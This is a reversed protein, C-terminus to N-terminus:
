DINRKAEKIKKNVENKIITSSAGFSIAYGSRVEMVKTGGIRHFQEFNIISIDNVQVMVRFVSSNIRKINDLGGVALIFGNIVKKTLVTNFLNLALFQYYMRVALFYVVFMVVGVVVIFSITSYANVDGSYVLLDFINGPMASTPNGTYGFGFYINMAQCIAFLAGSAVIHFVFLMPAMILLFIELPLITGGLLSLLISIILFVRFRKRELKDSFLSYIAILMGPIAFLNLIYYPTIFRGYGIPFVGQSSQEMWITVDGTYGVGSIDIWSGGMEGFWFANRIISGLNLTSLFRDLIGYIFLHVPNNIDSAILTFVENLLQMILPWLYSFLLGLFSAGVIMLIVAYNNKDIFGLFGYKSKSRSKKYVVRALMGILLAGILGTHIPIQTGGNIGPIQSTNLALGFSSYYFISSFESAAFYMTTILFVIYGLIGIESQIGDSSKKSLMKILVFFPFNIILFNGITRLYYAIQLIWESEIQVYALFNSNLILSGCSYLILAIFLLKLPFQFINLLAHWKRM